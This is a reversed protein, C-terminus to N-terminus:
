RKGGVIHLGYRNCCWRGFGQRMAGKDASGQGRGEGSEGINQFAVVQAPGPFTEGGQPRAKMGGGMPQGDLSYGAPVKSIGNDIKKHAFGSGCASKDGPDNGGQAAPKMDM